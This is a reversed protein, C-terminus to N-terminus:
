AEKPAALPWLAKWAMIRADHEEKQDGGVM